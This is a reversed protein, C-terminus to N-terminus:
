QIPMPVSDAAKVPLSKIRPDDPIEGAQAQRTRVKIARMAKKAGGTCEKRSIEQKVKKEQIAKLVKPVYKGVDYPFALGHYYDGEYHQMLGKSTLWARADRYTKDQIGCLESLLPREKGFGDFVSAPMFDFDEQLDYWSGDGGEHDLWGANAYSGPMCFAKLVLYLKRVSPPMIAWMGNKILDHHVKIWATSDGYDYRTYTMKYVNKSRGKGIPKQTVNLWRGKLKDIGRAATSKSIGALAAITDLSPYAERTDKNEFSLLVLVISPHHFIWQAMTGERAAKGWPALIFGDGSFTVINNEDAM